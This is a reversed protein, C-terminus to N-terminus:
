AITVGSSLPLERGDALVAVNAGSALRVSSVVGEVAGDASRATRGIVGSAAGLSATSLITDLKQNTRVAQEVNSFQALQAVYDAPDVPRTPDQAKLQEILLKLFADYGLTNRSQSATATSAAPKPPTQVSRTDIM